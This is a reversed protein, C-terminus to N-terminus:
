SNKVILRELTDIVGDFGERLGKHWEAWDEAHQTEAYALRDTLDKHRTELWGIEKLAKVAEAGEAGELRRRAAALKQDIQQASSILDDNYTQKNM